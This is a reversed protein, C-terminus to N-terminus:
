AAGLDNVDYGWMSISHVSGASGVATTHLIMHANTSARVNLSDIEISATDGIAAALTAAWLVTAGSLLEVPIPGSRVAAGTVAVTLGTCVHYSGSVASNVASAVAAASSNHTRTWDAGALRTLAVM